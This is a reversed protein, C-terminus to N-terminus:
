VLTPGTLAVAGDFHATGGTMRLTGAGGLSSAADYTHTGNSVQLTAGALAEFAGSGSGGGGNNLRLMGSAVRVTGDNNFPGFPWNFVTEGTGASKVLLGANDFTCTGNTRTIQGDGRVDFTAGSRNELRQTGQVQLVGDDEWVVTGENVLRRGRLAHVADTRIVMTAEEAITLTPDGGTDRGNLTGSAWDLGDLVTLHGGGTLWATGSLRLAGVARADTVSAQGAAVVATDADAPVGAPTWTTPAARAGNPADATPRLPPAPPGPRAPPGPPGPPAPTTSAPRGRPSSPPTPRPRAAPRRGTTPTTGPGTAAAGPTASRRPPPPPSSRSSPSPRSPTAPCCPQS